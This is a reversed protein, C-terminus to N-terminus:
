SGTRWGSAADTSLVERNRGSPASGECRCRGEWTGHLRRLGSDRWRWAPCRRALERVAALSV